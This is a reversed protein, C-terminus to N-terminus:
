RPTAEEEEEEAADGKGKGQAEADAARVNKKKVVVRKVSTRPVTGSSADSAAPPQQASSSGSTSGAAAGNRAGSERRHAEASARRTREDVLEAELSVIKEEKRRLEAALVLGKGNSPNPPDGPRSNFLKIILIVFAVPVSLSIAIVAKSFILGDTSDTVRVKLLLGLLYFLFIVIQTFLAMDAAAQNSHPALRAYAVM